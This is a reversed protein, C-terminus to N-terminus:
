FFVKEVTSFKDGVFDKAIASLEQNKQEIEHVIYNENLNEGLQKPTVGFYRSLEIIREQQCVSYFTRMTPMKKKASGLKDDLSDNKIQHVIHAYYFMIFHYFDNLHEVSDIKAITQVDTQSLPRFNLNTSNADDGNVNHSNQVLNYQFNQIIECLSTLM